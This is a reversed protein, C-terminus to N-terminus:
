KLYITVDEGDIQVEKSFVADKIEDVIKFKIDKYNM